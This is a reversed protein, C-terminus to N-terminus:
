ADIRGLSEPLTVELHQFFLRQHGAFSPNSRRPLLVSDNPALAISRCAMSCRTWSHAWTLRTGGRERSRLFHLLAWSEAYFIGPRNRENYYPSQHDVATLTALPMFERQLRELHRQHVTGIRVKKADVAEFSSYFDALGEGMWLPLEGLSRSAALHM